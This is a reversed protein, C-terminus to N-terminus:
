PPQPRHGESEPTTTAVPACARQPMATALVEIMYCIPAVAPIAASSICWCLLRVLNTPSM